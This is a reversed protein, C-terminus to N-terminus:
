RISIVSRLILMREWERSILLGPCDELKERVENKDTLLDTDAM